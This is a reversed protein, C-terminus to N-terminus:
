GTRGARYRRVYPQSAQAMGSRVRLTPRPRGIVAPDLRRVPSTLGHAVLFGSTKRECASTRRRQVVAETVEHNQERFWFKHMATVIALTPQPPVRRCSHPLRVARNSMAFPDSAYAVLEVDM